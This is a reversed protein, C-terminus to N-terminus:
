QQNTYLQLTDKKWKKLENKRVITNYILIKNLILQILQILVLLEMVVVFVLFFYRTSCHLYSSVRFTIKSNYEM